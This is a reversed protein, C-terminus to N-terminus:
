RCRCTTATTKPKTQNKEENLKKRIFVSLKFCFNYNIQINTQKNEYNESTKKECTTVFLPKVKPVNIIIILTYSARKSNGQQKM